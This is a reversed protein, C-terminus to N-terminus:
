LKFGFTVANRDEERRKWELELVRKVESWHKLLNIGDAIRQYDHQKHNSLMFSTFKIDGNGCVSILKGDRCIAFLYDRESDLKSVYNEKIYEEVAQLNKEIQAKEENTYIM